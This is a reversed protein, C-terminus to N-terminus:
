EALGRFRRGVGREPDGEANTSLVRINCALQGCTQNM